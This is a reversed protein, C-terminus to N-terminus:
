NFGKGMVLRGKYVNKICTALEEMDGNKLLYGRAGAAHAKDAFAKDEHMTLIIVPINLNLIAMQQILEVGNMKPMNFDSLLVDPRLGEKLLQLAVLGNEAEGVVEMDPQKKLVNVIGKRVVPSDEAFLVKIM